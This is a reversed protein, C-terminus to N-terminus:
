PATARVPLFPNHVAILRRTSANLNALCDNTGGMVIVGVVDQQRRLVPEVRRRISHPTSCVCRRQGHTFDFFKEAPSPMYICLVSM